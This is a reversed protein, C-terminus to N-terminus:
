LFSFQFYVPLHDSIYRAERYDPIRDYFQNIGAKIFKFKSKNYFFNDYESALCEGNVLKQKLTTKQGKMASPYGMNKLPTFVAHSQSTNFDGCFILNDDPYIAPIFKLYKIETEPKKSKPVAHFTAITFSKGAITFRGMFPERDIELNYKNELKAEGVISVRDLKWIFAYREKSSQSSSTGHSITYGWKGPGIKNLEDALRIVAPPGGIGAVVEQIAVVDYNKITHAIFNVEANSKSQGFNQINWSCITVTQANAVVSVLLLCVVLCHSLIRKSGAHNM